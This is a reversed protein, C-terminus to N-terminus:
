MHIMKHMQKLLVVLCIFQLTHEVNYIFVTLFIFFMILSYFLCNLIKFLIPWNFICPSCQCRCIFQDSQLAISRSGVSGLSTFSCSSMGSYVADVEKLLVAIGSMSAVWSFWACIRLIYWLKFWVCAEMNISHSVPAFSTNRTFTWLGKQIKQISSGSNTFWMNNFRNIRFCGFDQTPKWAHSLM